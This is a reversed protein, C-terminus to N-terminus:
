GKFAKFASHIAVIGGTRNQWAVSSWGAQSIIEALASQNPWAEISEALYTYADPNSSFARALPPLVRMLYRFYITRFLRNTPHSFECVVLRGGPACVRHAEELASKTNAVNRLGFSITVVDFANDAFPLALNDAAIFPLERERRAGAELMGLSFDSAFASAGAAALPATSSGTGAACDLIRMGPRPAITSVVVKRWAKTRGLSLLDNLVDYRKAVQDFMAAVDKPSKDLRARVM